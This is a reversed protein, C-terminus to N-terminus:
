SCMTKLLVDDESGVKDARGEGEGSAEAVMVKGGRSGEENRGAPISWEENRGTSSM